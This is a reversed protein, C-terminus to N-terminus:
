LNTHLQLILRNFYRFSVYYMLRKNIILKFNLIYSINYAYKKQLM